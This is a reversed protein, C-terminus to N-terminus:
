GWRPMGIPRPQGVARVGKTQMEPGNGKGAHKEANSQPALEPAEAGAATRKRNSRRRLLLAGAILLAVFAIVGVAIGARAGASLGQHSDDYYGYGYGSNGAEATHM